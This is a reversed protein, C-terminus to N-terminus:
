ESDPAPDDRRASDKGTGDKSIGIVGAGIRGGADGSPQSGDDPDAHVIVARGLIGLRGGDLTLNKVVLSLTANGGSDAELNGLDGAHRKEEEPLGHPHGEPNFHEGASSADESGLDGFEHIHIAHRAGPRLGGIKATVEIGDPTKEFVVTGRVNSDGVPHIMAVLKAIEASEGHVHAKGAQDEQAFAPLGAGLIAAAVGGALLISPHKM